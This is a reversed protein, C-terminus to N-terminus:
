FKKDWEALAGRKRAVMIFFGLLEERSLKGDGSKDMNAFAKDFAEMNFENAEPVKEQMSKHLNM